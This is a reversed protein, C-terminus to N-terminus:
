ARLATTSEECAEGDLLSRLREQRNKRGRCKFSERAATARSTERPSALTAIRTSRRRLGCLHHARRAGEGPACNRLLLLITDSTWSVSIGTVSIGARLMSEYCKEDYCGDDGVNSGAQSSHALHGQGKGTPVAIVLASDIALAKRRSLQAWM